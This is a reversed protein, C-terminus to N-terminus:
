GAAAIIPSRGDASRANVDAGADVLLRTKEIDTVAWMLPTVGTDNAVNPDAGRKLIIRVLAADGYLAAAMLPTAGGPGRLTSVRPNGRVAALFGARNGARLAAFAAIGAADLPPVTVDGSAADPWDAGQDIWNQITATQEPTLPDADVPMRRGYTDGVLRLYLGSAAASGTAIVHLSGGRMAERRRDLRCGRM